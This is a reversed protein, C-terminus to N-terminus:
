ELINIRVGTGSGFRSEGPDASAHHALLLTGSSHLWFLQPPSRNWPDAASRPTSRAVPWSRGGGITTQPQSKVVLCDVRLLWQHDNNDLM